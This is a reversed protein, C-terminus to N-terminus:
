SASARPPSLKGGHILKRHRTLVHKFAFSEDCLPCKFNRLAQHRAQDHMKLNWASSFSQGCDPHQCMFDGRKLSCLGEHVRSRHKELDSANYYAKGCDPCLHVQRHEQKQHSKLLSYKPFAKECDSCKYKHEIIEEGERCLGCFEM